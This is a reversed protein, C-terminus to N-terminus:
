RPVTLRGRKGIRERRRKSGEILAVIGLITLALLPWYLPPMSALGLYGAAPSFPLAVGAVAAGLVTGMVLRSPRTPTRRGRGIPIVIGQTLWRESPMGLRHQKGALM